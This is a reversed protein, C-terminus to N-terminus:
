TWWFELSGMVSSGFMSASRSNLLEIILSMLQCWRVPPSMELYKPLQVGGVLFLHFAVSAWGLGGGFWGGECEFELGFEFVEDDLECVSVVHGDGFVDGCEYLAIGLFGSGALFGV